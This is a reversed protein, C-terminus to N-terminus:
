VMCVMYKMNPLSGAMSREQAMCAHYDLPCLPHTLCGIWQPGDDEESPQSLSAPQEYPQTKQLAKLKIVDKILCTQLRAVPKLLVHTDACVTKQDYISSMKITRCSIEKDTEQCTEFLFQKAVIM